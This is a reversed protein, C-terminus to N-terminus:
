ATQPFTKEFEQILDDLEELAQRIDNQLSESLDPKAILDLLYQRQPHLRTLNDRLAQADM